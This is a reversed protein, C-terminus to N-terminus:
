YFRWLIIGKGSGSRPIQMQLFGFGAGFSIKGV